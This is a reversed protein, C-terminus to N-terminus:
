ATGHLFGGTFGTDRRGGLKPIRAETKRNDLLCELGAHRPAHAPEDAVAAAEHPPWAYGDDAHRRM